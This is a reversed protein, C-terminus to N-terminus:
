NRKKRKLLITIFPIPVCIFGLWQLLQPLFFISITHDKKGDIVWGNEWNNVLIHQSIEKGFLFPFTETFWNLIHCQIGNISTCQTTNLSYAKWGEHFSQHLILTDFSDPNDTVRYSYYSLKKVNIANSIKTSDMPSQDRIQINKIAEYPFLYLSLANIKSTKPVHPYTYSYLTYMYGLGYQYHPPLIYYENGTQLRDEIIRQKKTMDNINLYPLQKQPAEINIHFLYGYRQPLKPSTYTINPQAGNNGSMIVGDPHKELSISGLNTYNQITTNQIDISDITYKPFTVTVTGNEITLTLPMEYQRISDTKEDLIKTPNSDPLVESYHNISLTSALNTTLTVTKENEKITWVPSMTRTESLLGLFPFYRQYTRDQSSQYTKYTSYALDQNTTKIVPGVDPLKTAVSVFNKSPVTSEFTYLTINKSKSILHIKASQSLLEKTKEYQLTKANGGFAIISSDLLIYGVSYKELINEVSSINESELAYKMQWFYSESTQSWVDFTRSIIPQEVGYWLFGSGIYGWTHQFWGWFTYEPLLAIRKTKDEHNLYAITDLYDQPITVRLDKAFYNGTFAPLAQICIIIGLLLSFLATIQGRKRKEFSVLTEVGVAFLYSAIFSYPIIYKTFPSRFIQSFFANTRLVENIISFPPTDLLLMLATVLYALLFAAHYKRKSFIGLLTVGILVYLILKVEPTNFYDKWPQFIADGRGTDLLDYHFGKMLLFDTINGKTLNQDFINDTHLQNAKAEQVVYGSTKLFYFQPLIWFANILLISIGAVIITKLTDLNRQSFIIGISLASMLMGYTVFLQQSVAQPTIAINIIFFILWDKKTRKPNIIRFFSWVAWPLMGYMVSFSEFPLYLIQISAFNLLYFLAGVFSIPAVFSAKTNSNKQSYGLIYTLATYMGLVGLILILIHFAYRLMPQPIVVSLIFISIARVLDAAHGMGAVLGFSQGEQWVSDFSRKVGLWPNLDTQFNDWGTLYTHPTYNTIAIVSVILILLLPFVIPLLRKM